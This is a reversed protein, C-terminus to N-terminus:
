NICWRRKHKGTICCTERPNKSRTVGSNKLFEVTKVVYCTNRLVAHLPSHSMTVTCFNDCTISVPFGQKFVWRTKIGSNRTDKEKWRLIRVLRTRQGSWGALPKYMWKYCILESRWESLEDVLSELEHNRRSLGLAHWASYRSNVVLLSRTRSVARDAEEAVPQVFIFVLGQM